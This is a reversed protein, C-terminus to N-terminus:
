NKLNYQLAIESIFEEVQEEIVEALKEEIEKDFTKLKTDIKKYILSVARSIDPMYKILMEEKQVQTMFPLQIELGREKGNRFAKTLGLLGEEIEKDIHMSLAKRVFGIGSMYNIEVAIYKQEAIDLCEEYVEKIERPFNDPILSYAMKNPPTEIMSKAVSKFIKKRRINEWGIGKVRVVMEEEIYKEDIELYPISESIKRYSDIVLELVKRELEM